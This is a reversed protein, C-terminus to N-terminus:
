ITPLTLSLTPGPECKLGVRVRLGRPSGVNGLRLGRADVAKSEVHATVAPLRGPDSVSVGSGVGGAELHEQSHDM